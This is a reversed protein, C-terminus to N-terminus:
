HPKAGPLPPRAGRPPNRRPDIAARWRGVLESAASRAMKLVSVAAQRDPRSPNRRVASMGASFEAMIFARAAAVIHNVEEGIASLLAGASTKFGPQEAHRDSAAPHRSSTAWSAFNRL